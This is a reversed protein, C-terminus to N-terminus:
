RARALLFAQPTREPFHGVKEAARVLRAREAFGAEALLEAVRDPQRRHFDLEIPHDGAETLHLPEDGVQFALQLHGGPALVRRFEAFVEPLLPDPVHITSYWALVGGLAGDDVPLSLMSGVEFRLGPHLRRAVAVMGPALDIGFAAVGLGDLHATVRGTGCGVDAVPGAVLEAFAALAARDLPKDALDDRVWAVYDEALEDYSVRTRRVFDPESMIPVSAPLNRSHRGAEYAVLVTVGLQIRDARVVEDHHGVHRRVRRAAVGARDVETVEDHFRAPVCGAEGIQGVLLGGRDTTPGCSRAAGQPGGARLVDVGHDDAVLDVV